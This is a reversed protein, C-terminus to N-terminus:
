AGWGRGCDRAKAVQLSPQQRPMRPSRLITPCLPSSFRPIALSELSTLVKQHVLKRAEERRGLGGGGTSPSTPM